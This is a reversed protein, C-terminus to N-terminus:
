TVRPCDTPLDVSILELVFNGFPANVFVFSAFAPLCKSAYRFNTFIYRFLAYVFLDDYISGEEDTDELIFDSWPGDGVITFAAMKISYNTWIDLGTIELSLTSMNLTYDRIRTGTTTLLALKYGM